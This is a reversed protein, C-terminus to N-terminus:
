TSAKAQRALTAEVPCGLECPANECNMCPVPMFRADAIYYGTRCLYRDIRLWHMDRGALFEDKGVVPVNNEAQCAVVCANCGICADLDIVMGWARGDNDKRRYLTPQTFAIDDGVPKGGLAQMRVYDHGEQRDLQQATAISPRWRRSQLKAGDIHWLADLRRLPM